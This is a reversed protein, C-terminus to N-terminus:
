DCAEVVHRGNAALCAQRAGRRVVALAEGHSAGKASSSELPPAEGRLHGVLQIAGAGRRFFTVDGAFPQQLEMHSVGDASLQIAAGGVAASGGTGGLAMAGEAESVSRSGILRAGGGGRGADSGDFTVTATTVGTAASGVGTTATATGASAGAAAGIERDM